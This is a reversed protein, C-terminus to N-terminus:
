FVCILKEENGDTYTSHRRSESEIGFSLFFRHTSSDKQNWQSHQHNNKHDVTDISSSKSGSCLTSRRIMFWPSRWGSSSDVTCFNWEIRWSKATRWISVSWLQDNVIISDFTGLHLEGEESIMEQRTLRTADLLHKWMSRRLQIDDYQRYRNFENKLSTMQRQIVFLISRYRLCTSSTCLTSYKSKTGIWHHRWKMTSRSYQKSVKIM